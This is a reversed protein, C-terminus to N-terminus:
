ASARLAPPAPAEGGVGAPAVAPQRRLAGDCAAFSVGDQRAKAPAPGFAPACM